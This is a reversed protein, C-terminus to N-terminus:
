IHKSGTWFSDINPQARRAAAIPEKTDDTYFDMVQSDGLFFRIGKYTCREIYM